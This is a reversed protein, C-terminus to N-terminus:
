AYKTQSALVTFTADATKVIAYTYTDVSNANGATPTYGAQWKPTVASGDIQLASPYYATSGNTVLLAFTVSQGVSLLSNLTTSSNGRVNLTFNSSANSTYYQVAQTVVDFHTTSAPASATITATEFLAKVKGYTSNTPNSVTPSSLTPTAITPSNALVVSGTGTATDVGTGGNAVPLAGGGFTPVNSFTVAGTFNNTGSFANTGSSTINGSFTNAGTFTNDKDQGAFNNLAYATVNLSIKDGGIYSRATTSEQGRVVTFTDSARGTVKVIEINNSSDILTAYFYDGSSLSPFLAGQGSAVTITTVSSNISASLTAVANNKFKQQAM